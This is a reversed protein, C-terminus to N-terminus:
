RRLTRDDGDGAIIAHGPAPELQLDTKEMEPEAEPEIPTMPTKTEIPKSKRRAWAFPKPPNIVEDGKMVEVNRVQQNQDYHVTVQVDTGDALTETPIGVVEWLGWTVVDGATHVLARTAKAGKSYGQKFSYVDVPPATNPDTWMPAGLEAIVHTRPTGQSLVNLNRKPPQQMAKTAACGSAGALAFLLACLLLLSRFHSEFVAYNWRL